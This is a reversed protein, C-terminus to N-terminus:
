PVTPRLLRAIMDQTEEAITTLRVLWFSRFLENSDFVDPPFCALISGAIRENLDANPSVVAIGHRFAARISNLLLPWATEQDQRNLDDAFDQARRPDAAFECVDWQAALHGVLLDSWRDARRRLRDLKAADHVDMDRSKTLWTLARHKAEMHGILISRAVPEIDDSGRTRDHACLVATWVRTLVEAALVEEVVGGLRVVGSRSSPPSTREEHALSKLGRLWRDLRIKSSTWYQEINEPPIPENNEVLISGHASVLAALELLERAHM